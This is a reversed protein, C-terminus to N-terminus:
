LGTIRATFPTLQQALVEVSKAIFNEKNDYIYNIRGFHQLNKECELHGALSQNAVISFYDKNAFSEKIGSRNLLAGLPIKSEKVLERLHTSLANLYIDIGAFLVPKSTNTTLVIARSLINNFIVQDIVNLKLHSNVYKELVVTMYKHQSLLKRHTYPMQNEHIIQINKFIENAIPNILM